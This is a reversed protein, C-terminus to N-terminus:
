IKRKVKLEKVKSEDKIVILRLKDYCRQQPSLMTIVVRNNLFFKHKKSPELKRKWVKKVKTKPNKTWCIKRNRTFNNKM